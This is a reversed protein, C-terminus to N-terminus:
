TLQVWALMSAGNEPEFRVVGGHRAPLVMWVAITIQPIILGRPASRTEVHTAFRRLAYRPGTVEYICRSILLQLRYSTRM